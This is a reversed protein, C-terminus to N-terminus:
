EDRSSARRTAVADSVRKVAEADLRGWALTRRANGTKQALDDFIFHPIACHLGKYIRARGASNSGVGGQNM